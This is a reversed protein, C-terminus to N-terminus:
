RPVIVHWRFHMHMVNLLQRAIVLCRVVIQLVNHEIHLCIDIARFSRDHRKDFRRDGLEGL